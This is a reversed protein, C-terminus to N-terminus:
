LPAVSEEGSDTGNRLVASPMVVEKKKQKKALVASATLMKYMAGDLFGKACNSSTHGAFPKCCKFCGDNNCLLQREMDTLTPLWIFLKMTDKNQTNTRVNSHTNSNLKKDNSSCAHESHLTNEVAKKQRALYCLCKGDLMHVKEIWLWLNTEDVHETHYDTALNAKIHSELHYLINVDTLHWTTGRLLMNQSQVNIAWESFPHQGQNSALMKCCVTDAWSIPLWIKQVKAMYEKFSLVDIEEQNTLYWDQIWPDQMGWAVKGVMEDEPVDKHRFFQICGMEWAWLAEPTVEGATLFPLKSASAQEAWTIKSSMTPAISNYDSDSSDSDTLIHATSPALISSNESENPYNDTHMTNLVPSSVLDPLSPWTVLFSRALHIGLTNGRTNHYVVFTHSYPLPLSATQLQILNTPQSPYDIGSSLVVTFLLVSVNLQINLLLTLSDCYCSGSVTTWVSIIHIFIHIPPITLLYSTHVPPICNIYWVTWVLFLCSDCITVTM